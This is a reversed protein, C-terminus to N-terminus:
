GHKHVQKRKDLLSHIFGIMNVIEDSHSIQYIFDEITEKRMYAWAAVLFILNIFLFVMVADVFTMEKKNKRKAGPYMGHLEKEAQVIFAKGRVLSNGAASLIIRYLGEGSPLFVGELFGNKGRHLNTETEMEDKKAALIKFEMSKLIGPNKIYLDDMKLWAKFPINKKVPVYRSDFSSMIKLSSNVYARNEKTTSLQLNWMGYQPNAIKIIEYRNYSYWTVNEPHEKKTYKKSNPPIIFFMNDKSQKESVLTIDYISEDVFFKGREFPILDPSKFAEYLILGNSAYSENESVPIFLGGSEAIVEVVPNNKVKGMGYIKIQKNQLTEFLTEIDKEDPKEKCSQGVFLVISLGNDLLNKSSLYNVTDNIAGTLKKSCSGSPALNDLAGMIGITDAPKSLPALVTYNDGLVALGVRDDAWLLSIFIKAGAAADEIHKEFGTTDFLVFVDDAELKDPPPVLFVFATFLVMLLSMRM